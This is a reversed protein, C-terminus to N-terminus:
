PAEVVRHGAYDTLEGAANGAIQKGAAVGWVLALTVKVDFTGPEMWKICLLTLGSEPDSVEEFSAIKPIGLDSAVKDIDDPIGTMIAIARPDLFVGNLGEGNDPLEPYEFISGFGAVRSLVGLASGGTQQGYYDGSAIRPDADLGEFADSNVIGIRGFPSAGKKNMAVRVAGITDRDYDVADVQSVESFADAKVKGLVDLVVARALAYGANQIAQEYVEKKDAISNLYSLNLDVHKHQDILISLDEVLDKTEQKNDAHGYGKAPDWDAVDPVSAIHAIASQGKKLRQNTFQHAFAFLFPLRVRFAAIVDAVIETTTLTVPM